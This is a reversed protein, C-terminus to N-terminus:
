GRRRPSTQRLRSKEHSSSKQLTSTSFPKAAETTEHATRCASLSRGASPRPDAGLQVAEAMFERVGHSEYVFFWGHLSQRGSFAAAVLPFRRGLHAHLAAMTNVSLEPLDFEIVLYVRAATAAKTHESARGDQTVGRRSTMPNPVILPLRSLHGRWTRRRRTAFEDIFGCCLWPDGPFLADIVEETHQVDDEFRVPSSEWLDYLEPGDKRIAEIAARNVDPWTRAFGGRRIGQGGANQGCKRRADAMTCAIERRSVRRRAGRTAAHLLAEIHEDGLATQEACICAAHFLWPHIGRFPLADLVSQVREPLAFADNSPAASKIVSPM